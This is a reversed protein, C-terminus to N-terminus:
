NMSTESKPLKTPIEPIKRIVGQIYCYKFLVHGTNKVPRLAPSAAPFNIETRTSKYLLTSFRYPNKQLGKQCRSIIKITKIHNHFYCKYHNTYLTAQSSQRCPCGRIGRNEYM